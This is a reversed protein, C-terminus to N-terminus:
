GVELSLIFICYDLCHPISSFISFNTLLIFYFSIKNDPIINGSIRKQFGLFLNGSIYNVPVLITRSPIKSLVCFPVATQGSWWNKGNWM